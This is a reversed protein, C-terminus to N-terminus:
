AQATGHIISHIEPVQNCWDDSLWYDPFSKEKDFLWKEALRESEIWRYEYVRINRKNYGGHIKCHNVWYSGSGLYRSIDQTTQGIYQKGSTTNTMVYYYRPRWYDARSTLGAM